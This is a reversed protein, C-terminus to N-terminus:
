QRIGALEMAQELPMSKTAINGLGTIADAQIDVNEIVGVGVHGEQAEEYGIFLRPYNGVRLEDPWCFEGGPGTTTQFRGDMMSGDPLVVYCAIDTNALPQGAADLVVGEIGGTEHCVVVVEEVTEGPEGSFPKSQGIEKIEDTWAVAQLTLFPPLGHFTVRGEENSILTGGCGYKRGAQRMAAKVGEVPDGNEKVYRVPATVPADIEFNLEKTEGPKLDVMVVTEEPHPWGSGGETMYACGARFETEEELNPLVLTYAGDADTMAANMVKASYWRRGTSVEPGDLAPDASAGRVTVYPVPDGSTRDTVIGHLTAADISGIILDVGSTTQGASVRVGLKKAGVLAITELPTVVLTRKQEPSAAKVAYYFDAGLGRAEYRGDAAAQVAVSEIPIQQIQIESPALGGPLVHGTVTITAGPVPQGDIRTVKGAIAGDAHLVFRANETGTPVQPFSAPAYDEHKILLDCLGSAPIALTFYGREDTSAFVM